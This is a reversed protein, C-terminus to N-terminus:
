NNKWFEAAPITNIKELTTIMRLIHADRNGDFDLEIEKLPMGILPSFDQIPCRSCILKKLSLAAIPALNSVKTRTCTIEELPMGRLPSLDSVQTVGFNIFVLPMKEVPSLDTVKTDNIGLARIPCDKIPELNATHSGACVLWQLPMGTLPSLDSIPTNHCELWKLPMGRLAELSTIAGTQGQQGLRLKELAPLARLPSIDHVGKISMEFQIVAGKFLAPPPVSAPDFEPNLEKLRDIVKKAQERVPLAAVAKNFDEPTIVPSPTSHLIAAVPEVTPAATAPVAPAVPKKTAYWGLGALVALVAASAMPILSRRSRKIPLDDGGAQVVRLLEILEAYSAPREKPDKALMRDLLALIARPCDPMHTLISPLPETVHQIMVAFSGDGGYPARGCLMHYLTCGLSYIDTSFDLDKHCRAQEPSIYLPTGIPMGTSTLTSEVDANRAMGFDALKVEGDTSILVNSPKVDRHILRAKQWAADLARTLSTVIAVADDPKIRGEREMRRQLSEGDVYEMAIYHIGDMEGAAYVQVIGPHMISAAIMAERKFRKPFEPDHALEPLLVKVAVRRNLSPQEALYVSGMGGQGVKTLLKFEGVVQGEFGSM